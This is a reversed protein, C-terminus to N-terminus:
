QGTRQLTALERSAARSVDEENGALARQYEALALSRKGQDAYTQALLFHLRGDSAAISLGKLFAAEALAYLQHQDYDYGLDTYAERMLPDIALARLYLETAAHWRGALDELYGLDVLAEPGEANVRNAHDFDARALDYRGQAIYVDGRNVLAAYDDGNTRLCRDLMDLAHGSQGLDLYVSGLSALTVCDRSNLWLARELYFAAEAYKRLADYIRGMNYQAVFDLTSADAKDKRFQVFDPLDGQRRHLEILQGYAMSSAPLSQTFQDIAESVRDQAAYIGGLRNHTERDKPEVSLVSKYVREASALDAARFYLDGLYKAPEIERSHEAVYKALSRIADDLKGLAVLKRAADVAESGASVSPAGAQSAQATAPPAAALAHAGGAITLGTAFVLGISAHFLRFYTHM